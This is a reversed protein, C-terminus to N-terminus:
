INRRINIVKKAAIIASARGCVVDRVLRGISMRRVILSVVIVTMPVSGCSLGQTISPGSTNQCDSDQNRHIRRIHLDSRVNGREPRGSLCRLYGACSVATSLQWRLFQIDVRMPIEM